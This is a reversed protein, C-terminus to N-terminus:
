VGVRVQLSGYVCPALNDVHHELVTALQLVQAKSLSAGALACGGLIGSVIAASSSGLGAGFPIANNCTFAVPPMPVGAAEFALKAARVVLNTEDRALSGAGEGTVAV